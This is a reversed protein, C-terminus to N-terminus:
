PPRIEDASISLRDLIRYVRTRTMGLERAVASLNGRCRRFLALTAHREGTASARARDGASRVALPLHEVDISQKAIVVAKAICQELERINLPWDYAFVATAAAHSLTRPGGTPDHRAMLNAVLVGL